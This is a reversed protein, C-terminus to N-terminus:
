GKREPRQRQLLEAWVHDSPGDWDWARQMLVRTTYAAKAKAEAIKAEYEVTPDGCPDCEPAGPPGTTHGFLRARVRHLLRDPGTRQDDGDTRRVEQPLVGEAAARTGHEGAGRRAGPRPSVLNAGHALATALLGLVGPQTAADFALVPRVRREFDGMTSSEM